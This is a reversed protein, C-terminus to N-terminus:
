AAIIDPKPSPKFCRARARRSDKLQRIYCHQGDGRDETWGLFVDPSSGFM